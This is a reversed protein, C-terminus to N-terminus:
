HVKYTLKLILTQNLYEYLSIMRVEKLVNVWTIAVFPGDDECPQKQHPVEICYLSPPAISETEKKKEGTSTTSTKNTM